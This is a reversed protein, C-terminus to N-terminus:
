LTTEIVSQDMPQLLSTVNPPLFKVKFKGNERELLEASPHTPANDLLLLVNGQKGIENQRRKVEPIFTNDYWDIFIESNM